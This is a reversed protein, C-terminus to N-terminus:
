MSDAIASRTASSFMIGNQERKDVPAGTRAQWLHRDAPRTAAAFFLPPGTTGSIVTSSM